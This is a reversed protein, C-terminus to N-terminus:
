KKIFKTKYYENNITICNVIYIGSNLDSIDILNENDCQIKFRKGYMDIIEISLVKINSLKIFDKAPNPYVQLINNNYLKTDNNVGDKIKTLFVNPNGNCNLTHTGFVAKGSNGYYYGTTYINDNYFAISSPYDNGRGGCNVVWETNFTSNLKVIFIDSAGYNTLNYNDFTENGWYSGTVFIENESKICLGDCSGGGINKVNQFEGQSNYKAVFNDVTGASTITNNEFIISGGFNGVVYINGNKGIVLDKGYGNDFDADEGYSNRVWITNGSKDHSSIFFNKNENTSTITDFNSNAGIEGTLYIRKNTVKVSNCEDYHGIGGFRKLWKSNGNSNIKSLFIDQDGISKISLTDLELEKEFKGAIYINSSDDVAVSRGKAYEKGKLSKTWLFDGMANLKSVYIDYNYDYSYLTDQGFIIRESFGGVIIINNYIDTVVSYAVDTGHSYIKKTWELEGSPKYKAIFTNGSYYNSANAYGVLIINGSNDVCVANGKTDSLPCEAWEFSQSFSNISFSVLLLIIIRKM